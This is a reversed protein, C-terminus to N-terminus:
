AVRSASLADEPPRCSEEWGPASVRFEEELGIKDFRAPSGQLTQLHRELSSVDLETDGYLYHELLAQYIFSYQMQPPPSPAQEAAGPPRPRGREKDLSPSKPAFNPITAM